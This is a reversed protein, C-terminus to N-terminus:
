PSPAHTIHSSCGLPPDLPQPLHFGTKEPNSKHVNYVRRESTQWLTQHDNVSIFSHLSPPTRRGPTPKIQLCRLLRRRHGAAPPQPQMLPAKNPSQRTQAEPVSDTRQSCSRSSLWACECMSSGRRKKGDACLQEEKKCKGACSNLLQIQAANEM